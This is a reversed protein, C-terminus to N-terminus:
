MTSFQCPERGKRRRGRKGGRGRREKEEEEAGGGGERRRRRSTAPMGPAASPSRWTRGEEVKRDQSM